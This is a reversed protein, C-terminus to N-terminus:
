CDAYIEYLPQRKIRGDKPHVCYRALYPITAIQYRAFRITSVNVPNITLPMISSLTQHYWCIYDLDELTHQKTEPMLLFIM